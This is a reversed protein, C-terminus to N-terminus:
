LEAEYVPPSTPRVSGGAPEITITLVDATTADYRVTLAARGEADVHLIGLSAAEGDRVAWMQYVENSRTTLAQLGEAIVVARREDGFYVVAGSPEGDVSELPAFSTVSSAFQNAGDDDGLQNMLVINWTLLGGIAAVMVAALAGWSTRWTPPAGRARVTTTTERVIRRPTAAAPQDQPTEAVSSVIRDRLGSPPTRPEALTPLQLAVVRVESALSRHDDCTELHARFEAAEDEPLADVAYAGILEDARECNM